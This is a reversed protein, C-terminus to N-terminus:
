QVAPVVVSLFADTIKNADIRTRNTMVVVTVDLSPLYWMAANFGRLAGTHGFMRIGQYTRTRTGLGYAGDPHNVYGTMEALAEPTLVDGGYLADAWRALNRCTSVVGGAAFIVTAESKTPRYNTGDSVAKNGSATPVYGRASSKPPPGDAQFYTANMGLPDWFRERLVQGLAKGTQQEIVIGLL